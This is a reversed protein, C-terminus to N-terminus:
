MVQSRHFRNRYGEFTGEVCNLFGLEFHLVSSLFFFFDVPAKELLSVSRFNCDNCFLFSIWAEKTFVSEGAMERTGSLASM